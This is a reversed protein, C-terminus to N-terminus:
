ERLFVYGLFDIHSCHSLSGTGVNWPAKNFSSFLFGEVLAYYLQNSVCPLHNSMDSCFLFRLLSLPLCRFTILYSVVGFLSLSLSTSNASSLSNRFKSLLFFLLFRYFYHRHEE